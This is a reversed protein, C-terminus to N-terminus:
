EFRSEVSLYHYGIHDIPMRRWISSSAKVVALVAGDREIVKAASVGTCGAQDEIKRGSLIVYDYREGSNIVLDPRAYSRFLDAKGSVFVKAGSPAVQNVYGAAELLSTNWYDLDYKHFAGRVGGIFSNYYIYQYPHLHIDMYIAPLAFLLVIAVRYIVRHVKRFLADLTLGALLFIPPLVFLFQRFNNYVISGKVIVGFVPLIFWFIFLGLPEMQKQKIARWVSIAFGIAFLILVIETLQITMLYPLYYKPIEYGSVIKGQFLVFGDWPYDSMTVLSEIFRRIANGWLYPWTLYITLGAVLLYPPIFLISKRWSKHIGYLVVM